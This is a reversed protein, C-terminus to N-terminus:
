AGGTPKMWPPPIPVEDAALHKAEEAQAEDRLAGVAQAVGPDDLIELETRLLSKMKILFQRSQRRIEEYSATGQRLTDETEKIKQQTEMEAQYRMANCEEEASRRMEEARQQANEVVEAATKQALEIAENLQKEMQAFQDKRAQYLASEERLRENERLLLEFDNVIEDLFADVDDESYGRFSRGFAKNHIDASTLM